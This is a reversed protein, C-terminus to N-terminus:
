IYKEDCVIKHTRDAENEKISNDYHLDSAIFIYLTWTKTKQKKWEGRTKVCNIGSIKGLAKDKIMRM